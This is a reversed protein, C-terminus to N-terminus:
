SENLVEKHHMVMNAERSSLGLENMLLQLDDKDKNSEKVKKTWKLFRKGKPVKDMFYDYILKDNLKNYTGNVRNVIDILKSDHSFWMCLMYSPAVKKDYELSEKKYFIQNIYDFITVEKEM